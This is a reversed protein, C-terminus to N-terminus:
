ELGALRSWTAEGVIGDVTLGEAKQFAKVAAETKYGFDGDITAKYYGYGKLMEQLGKVQVGKMGRKTAGVIKVKRVSKQTELANSANSANSILGYWDFADGYFVDKDLPNSTYQWMTLKPWVTPGPKKSYQALWLPFGADAIPKYKALRAQSQQVYFLPKSGTKEAVYRLWTLAWAPSHQLAKQEWDLCPVAKGIWPEFIKLFHEAEKVATNYEPRAYHYAGLLQGNASANSMHARFRKGTWTVGESAKVIVFSYSAYATASVKNYDSTDVGYLAM